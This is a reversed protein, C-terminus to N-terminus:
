FFVAINAAFCMLCLLLVSFTFDDSAIALIFISMRFIVYRFIVIKNKTYINSDTILHIVFAMLNRVKVRTVEHSKNVIQQGRTQNICFRM